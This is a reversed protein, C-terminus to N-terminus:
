ITACIDHPHPRDPGYVLNGDPQLDENCYWYNQDSRLLGSGGDELTVASGDRTKYTKGAELKM